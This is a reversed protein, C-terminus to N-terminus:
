IRAIQEKPSLYQRPLTAAAYTERSSPTEIASNSDTFREGTALHQM